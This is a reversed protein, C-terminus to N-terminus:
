RWVIIAGPIDPDPTGSPWRRMEAGILLHSLFLLAFDLTLGTAGITWIWLLPVLFGCLLGLGVAAFMAAITLYGVAFFPGDLKEALRAYPYREEKRPM